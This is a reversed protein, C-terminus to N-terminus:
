RFGRGDASAARPAAPPRESSAAGAALEGRGGSSSPLRLVKGGGFPRAKRPAESLPPAPRATVEYNVDGFSTPTPTRGIVMQRQRRRQLASLKAVQARRRSQIHVAARKRRAALKIEREMRWQTQMKMAAQIQKKLERRARCGRWLGQVLAIRRCYTRWQAWAQLVALSREMIALVGRPQVALHVMHVVRAGEPAQAGEALPESSTLRGRRDPVLTRRCSYLRGVDVRQKRRLENVFNQCRRRRFLTQIALAVRKKARHETAKRQHQRFSRQIMLAYKALWMYKVARVRVIMEVAADGVGTVAEANRWLRQIRIAKDNMDLLWARVRYSRWIKQIMQVCARRQKFVRVQQWMIVGLVLTSAAIHQRRYLRSARWRRFAVSIQTAALAWERVDSRALWGRWAAQMKTLAWRQHRFRQVALSGRWWRIITVGASLKKAAWRRALLGRTCRQIESAAGHRREVIRRALVMRTYTQLRIVSRQAEALRGRRWAGDACAEIRSLARLRELVRRRRLLGRAFRQIVKAKGHLLWLHRRIRDGRFVRQMRLIASRQTLLRTRPWRVALYDKCSHKLAKLRRCHRRYRWLFGLGVIRRCAWLKLLWRAREVRARWFAQVVVAAARRQQLLRRDRRGRYLAQVSTAAKKNRRWEGLRWANAKALAPQRRLKRFVIDLLFRTERGRWIRQLALILWRRTSFVRRFNALRFKQQITLAAGHQKKMWRRVLFGRGTAQVKHLAACRRPYAVRSQQHMRLFAQLRRAALHRREVVCWRSLARRLFGQILLISNLKKLHRKRGLWQRAICQVHLMQNLRHAAIRRGLWPRALSAQIKIAAELKTKRWRVLRFARMRAQISTAAVLSQIYHWRTKWCLWANQITRAAHELALFSNFYLRAASGTILYRRFARQVVRAADHDEVLKMCCRARVYKQICIVARITQRYETRTLMMRGLAQIRPLAEQIERKFRRVEFLMRVWSQIQTAASYRTQELHIARFGKGRTEDRHAIARLTEVYATAKKMRYFNQIKRPGVVRLFDVHRRALLGRVMKQVRTAEGTRLATWQRTSYVRMLGVIKTAPGEM